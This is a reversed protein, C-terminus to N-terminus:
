GGGKAEWKERNKTRGNNGGCLLVELDENGRIM